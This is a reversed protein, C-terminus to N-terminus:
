ATRRKRGPKGVIGLRERLVVRIAHDKLPQRANSQRYLRQAGPRLQVLEVFRSINFKDIGGCHRLYRLAARHIDARSPAAAQKSGRVIKYSLKQLERVRM